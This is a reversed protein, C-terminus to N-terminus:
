DLPSKIAKLVHTAVHTYIETTQVSSHGLLKQIYRIDTGNELLHTAFSHRLIHPTVRVSIGALRAAKDVLSKVSSAGYPGGHMGEFLYKKPHYEQYYVRLDKLLNQSLLTYRDKNNKTSNVMILMRKSDIDGIKLALLESRRLGASYLLAIICKHKINKTLNIMAQIQEKSLVKPLKQQKIPREIHYFRSPMDLVVEYYFKISNLAQNIYSNSVEDRVLKQLYENIDRENIHLLDRDKYYNIFREFCNVYGKVTNMAYRKIELKDFYEKPCRRYDKPVRRTRYYEVNKPKDNALPKHRFLSNCSVWAVGKFTSFVKNLNVSTNPLYYMSYQKSWQINPLQKVLALIVKDTYFHLGIYKTGDIMLHRVTISKM